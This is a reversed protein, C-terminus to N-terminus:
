PADLKTLLREVRLMGNLDSTRHAHDMAAFLHTQEVDLRAPHRELLDIYHAFLKEPAASTRKQVAYKVVAHLQYRDTM